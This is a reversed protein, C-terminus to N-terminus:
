LIRTTIYPRLSKFDYFFRKFILAVKVKANFLGLPVKGSLLELAESM